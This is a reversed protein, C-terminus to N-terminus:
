LVLWSHPLLDSTNTGNAFWQNPAIVIKDNRGDLWAGWWSFSSNAIIHHKCISMLQMDRYSEAGTNHGIYECPFDIKLHDKAWAIDDSFVYFNPNAVKGSVFKVADQYYSLSCVGHTKLTEPNSVYDGRRIHLSVSDSQNMQGSLQLNLGELPKIFTFDKRIIDEYDQFYKESQWYGILYANAPSGRLNSWYQFFPEVVYHENRFWSLKPSKLAKRLQQFSQWSLVDRFDKEAALEFSSLKFVDTLEFRHLEYHKFDEVDLFLVSEKHQALAKATAYQFMQNGLGGLLNVILKSV